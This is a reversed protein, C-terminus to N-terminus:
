GGKLMWLHDESCQGPALNTGCARQAGRGDPVYGRLIHFRQAKGYDASLGVALGVKGRKKLATAEALSMLEAAIGQRQLAPLVNLDSVEPINEKAFPAYDCKWKLTVYGAFRDGLWATWAERQGTQQESVYREFTQRPKDWGIAQFESVITDIQEPALKKLTVPGRRQLMLYHEKTLGYVTVDVFRGNKKEHHRLTGEYRFGCRELVRASAHNFTFVHAFLRELGFIGFGLDCLRAIAASALGKGRFPNAIWYGVEARHSGEVDLGALGAGGVLYGHENRIAFETIRPKTLNDQLRGAVWDKADAETYPYPIRLTNDHVSRDSLHQMYAAEDGARVETLTFGPILHYM